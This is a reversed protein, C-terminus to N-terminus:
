VPSMEYPGSKDPNHHKLYDTISGFNRLVGSVAMSNRVFEM